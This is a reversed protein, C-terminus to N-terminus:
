TNTNRTSEENSTEDRKDTRPVPPHPLYQRPPSPSPIPPWQTINNNHTEAQIDLAEATAESASTISRDRTAATIRAEAEKRRLITDHHNKLEFSSQLFVKALWASVIEIHIRGKRSSFATDMADNTKHLCEKFFFLKTAEL